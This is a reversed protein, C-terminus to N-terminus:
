NWKKLKNIVREKLLTILTADGNAVKQKHWENYSAVSILISGAILLYAWWPMNGWFPRTQIIVNLLLVGAGVFFYSKVRVTMGALMSILSLSGLILADYVTNSALGDQILSLAVIVLVAWVIYELTKQYRNKLCSQLYIVLAVWPLVYAEREFLDPINFEELATYYPQLLYAGALFKVATIWNAPVRDKQLWLTLSIFLGPLLKVVLMNVEFVYMFAFFLFAVLTYVDIRTSIGKSSEDFLKEYMLTGALVAGAGIGGSILALTVSQLESTLLFQMTGYFFLLLPAIILLDWKVVHLFSLTGIVYVLTMVYLIWDYPYVHVFTLIGMMAQPVLFLVIRRRLEANSLLWFVTVLCSTILFAFHPEGDGTASRLATYVVFLLTILGSYLFTNVKWEDKSIYTSYAYIALGALLSWISNEGYIVFTLFLAFPLYIYGVWAFGNSLGVEKGRLLEAIGLIIIAGITLQASELLDSFDVKIHASILITFYTILSITGVVFTVWKWKTFKYLIYYMGIGILMLCPRVWVENITLSISFLLGISYILQATFFSSKMLETVKLRNWVLSLALVLVGAAAYNTALGLEEAFFASEVRVGELFSVISFGFSIPLIWCATMKYLPRDDKSFAFYAILMFGLLMSALENWEVFAAGAFIAATMILVGVDKSSNTIVRLSKIRNFVGIGLYLIFGVLFIPLAFSEFHVKEDIMRVGEFLGTAIFIPSLYTFLRNSQLNALYVFNAAIVFYAILLVLSPQDMRLLMGELSIYLFSLVSVAASTWRFVTDLRYQSSILKPVALFLFGLFAFAIPGFEELFSYEVLQYVGYVLMASFVFHYEKKGSVFIMSLYIIATLILNFGYFVHNEFFLVMLLTSLVLNIQIYPALEKSFLKVSENNKLRHYLYILCANFLMIGLYYGDEGLEFALLAYSIAITATIYSFWVFLRSEVKKATFGYVPLLVAGGLLGLVYRGDGYFSLYPGLLEFWGLSLVFIPLFLSALVIFAFATKEIHLVRKSIYAIGYFLVSVAGISGAKMLDSMTAWNSTAVFLGGILLLIVGINLSWTINRERIEEPTKVKKQKVPKPPHVPAKKVPKVSEVQETPVVQEKQQISVSHQKVENTKLDSFYKHHARSVEVFQELNIYEGDRLKLLEQHFVRKREEKSLTPGM